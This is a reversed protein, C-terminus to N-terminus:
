ANSYTTDEGEELNPTGKQEALDLARIRVILAELNSVTERSIFHEIQEVQELANESANLLCFFKSLVEHRHLLYKGIELGRPSPRILGYREYEVLNLTKLSGVMKSASSPRVNLKAALLHIRVHGDEGALRCIMELYDEMTETMARGSRMQYGKLTYFENKDTEPM